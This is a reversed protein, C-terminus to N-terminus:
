AINPILNTSEPAGRFCVCTIASTYGSVIAADSALLANLPNGERTAAKKNSNGTGEDYEHELRYDLRSIGGNVHTATVYSYDWVKYLVRQPAM